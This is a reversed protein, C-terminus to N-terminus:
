PRVEVFRLRTGPVLTAPLKRSDDWLVLETRGILQWGGPSATPYVGTFVDALAVSGPPVRTRPNPRRPVTRELGTCYAFGPSFGCFAVVMETSTHLDVVERPTMQWHEAVEALDPGDYRTPVEVPVTDQGSGPGGGSPESRLPEALTRLRAATASVDRLGAFLVTRAAPVVEAAEIGHRLAADYVELAERTDAVEVLLADQGVPLLRV